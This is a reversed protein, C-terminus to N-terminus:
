AREKAALRHLLNKDLASARSLVQHRKMRVPSVSQKRDSVDIVSVPVVIVSENADSRSEVRLFAGCVGDLDM